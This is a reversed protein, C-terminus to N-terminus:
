SVMSQTFHGENNRKSDAFVKAPKSNTRWCFLNPFVAEFWDFSSFFSLVNKAYTCFLCMLNFDHYKQDGVIKTTPIRLIMSTLKFYKRFDFHLGFFFISPNSCRNQGATIKCFFKLLM